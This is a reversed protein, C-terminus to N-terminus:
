CHLLPAQWHRLPSALQPAAHTFKAESGALQLAQPTAQPVPINQTAPAPVLEQEAEQGSATHPALQTLMWLLTV